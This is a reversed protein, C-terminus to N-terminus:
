QVREINAYGIVRGLWQRSQWIEGGRLEYTNNFKGEPVSCTEEVRNGARRATCTFTIDQFQAEGDLYRHYRSYGSGGGRLAALSASPDSSMLDAGLGRTAIVLANRTVVSVGTADFWTVAGGNQGAIVLTAVAGQKPLQVLLVPQDTGSQEVQRLLAARQEALSAPAGQAGGTGRKLVSQGFNVLPDDALSGCSALVVGACLALIARVKM